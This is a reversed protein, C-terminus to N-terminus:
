PHAALFGLIAMALADRVGRFAELREAETGQIAAPDSFSWHLRKVNGPFLPCHEKANDCVTIVYDFHQGEFEAVDKSRHGSLDIRLESM